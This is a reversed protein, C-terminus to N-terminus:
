RVDGQRLVRLLDVLRHYKEERPASRVAAAAAQVPASDVSSQFPSAAPNGASEPPPLAIVNTSQRFSGWLGVQLNEAADKLQLASIQIVAYLPALPQGPFVAGAPPPLSAPNTGVPLPNVWVAYSIGKFQGNERVACPVVTLAILADPLARSEFASSPPAASVTVEEEEPSERHRALVEGFLPLLRHDPRRLIEKESETLDFNEFVEEPSELLRQCLEPRIASEILLDDIKPKAMTRGDKPSPFDSVDSRRSSFVM